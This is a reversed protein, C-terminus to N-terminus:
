SVVFVLQDSMELLKQFLTESYLCSVNENLM